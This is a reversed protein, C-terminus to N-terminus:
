STIINKGNLWKIKEVRKGVDNQSTSQGVAPWVKYLNSKDFNWTVVGIELLKLIILSLIVERLMKTSTQIEVSPNSSDYVTTKLYIYKTNCNKFYERM